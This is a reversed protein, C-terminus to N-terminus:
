APVDKQVEQVRRRQKRRRFVPTGDELGQVYAVSPPILRRRVDGVSMGRVGEDIGAIATGDGFRVFLQCVMKTTTSYSTTDQCGM